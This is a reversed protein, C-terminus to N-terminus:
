LGVGFFTPSLRFWKFGNTEIQLTLTVETQPNPLILYIDTMGELLMQTGVCFFTPSSRFWKFGNTEIELTLTVETQPKRTPHGHVAIHSWYNVVQLGKSLFNQLNYQMNKFHNKKVWKHIAEDCNNSSPGFPDFREHFGSLGSDKGWTSIFYMAFNKVDPDNMWEAFVCACACEFEPINRALQLDKIQQDVKARKKPDSIQLLRKRYRRQVHPFCMGRKKSPFVKRGSKSISKSDDAMLLEPQWTIQGSVPDMNTYLGVTTPLDRCAEMTNAFTRSRENAAVVIGFPFGKGNADSHCPYFTPFKSM